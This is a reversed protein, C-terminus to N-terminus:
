YYICNINSVISIKKYEENSFIMKKLLTFKLKGIQGGNISDPNACFEKINGKTAHCKAYFESNCLYSNWNKWRIYHALKEIIKRNSVKYTIGDPTTYLHGGGHIAYFKICKDASGTLRKWKTPNLTINFKEIIVSKHMLYEAYQEKTFELRIPNLISKCNIEYVQRELNVSNDTQSM